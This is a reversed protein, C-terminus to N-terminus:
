RSWSWSILPSLIKLEGETWKLSSFKLFVNSPILSSTMFLFQNSWPTSWVISPSMMKLSTRGGPARFDGKTTTLPLRQISFPVRLPWSMLCSCFEITFFFSAVVISPPTVNLPTTVESPSISTEPFIWPTLNDVSARRFLCVMFVWSGLIMGTKPLFIKLFFTTTSFFRTTLPRTSPTNMSSKHRVATRIKPSWIMVAGTVTFPLTVTPDGRVVSPNISPTSTLCNCCPHKSRFKGPTWVTRPFFCKLLRTRIAGEVTWPFNPPIWNFSSFSVYRLRVLFWTIRVGIAKTSPTVKSASAKTWPFILVLSLRIRDGLDAEM